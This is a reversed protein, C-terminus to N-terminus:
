VVVTVDVLSVGKGFGLFSPDTPESFTIRTTQGVSTRGKEEHTMSAKPKASFVSALSKGM